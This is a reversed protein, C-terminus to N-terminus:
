SSHNQPHSSFSHPYTSQPPQFVPSPSSCPSYKPLHPPTPIHHQPRPQSPRNPLAEHHPQQRPPPCRQPQRHSIHRPLTRKRHSVTRTPICLITIGQTYDNATPILTSAFTSTSEQPKQARSTRRGSRQQEPIHNTSFSRLTAHPGHVHIPASQAKFKAADKVKSM